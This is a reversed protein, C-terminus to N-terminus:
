YEEFIGVPQGARILLSVAAQGPTRAEATVPMDGSAKWYGNNGAFLSDRVSIGRPMEAREFFRRMDLVRLMADPTKGSFGKYRLASVGLRRLAPAFDAPQMPACCLLEEAYLTGAGGDYALFYGDVEGAADRHVCLVGANLDLLEAYRLHFDAEARQLFLAKGAIYRRYCAAVAERVATPIDAERAYFSFGQAAREDTRVIIEEESRYSAAAFGLREYFAPIFTKLAAMPVGEEALQRLCAGLLRTSYGKGQASKRTAVGRLLGVPVAGGPFQMERCSVGAMSLLGEGSFLGWYRDQAYGERFYFDAFGDADEPFAELWLAKAQAADAPQLIRLQTNEQASM